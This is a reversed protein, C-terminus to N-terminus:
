IRKAAIYCLLSIVVSKKGMINCFTIEEISPFTKTFLYPYCLEEMLINEYGVTKSVQRGLDVVIRFM